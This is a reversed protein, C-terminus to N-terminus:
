EIKQGFQRSVGVGQEDKAVQELEPYTIRFDGKGVVQRYQFLEPLQAFFHNLNDIQFPVVIKM